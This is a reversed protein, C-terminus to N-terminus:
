HGEHLGLFSICLRGEQTKFYGLRANKKSLARNYHKEPINFINFLFNYITKEPDRSNKTWRKM